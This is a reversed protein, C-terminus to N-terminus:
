HRYLELRVWTFYLNKINESDLGIYWSFSQPDKRVQHFVEMKRWTRWWINRTELINIEGNSSFTGDNYYIRNHFMYGSEPNLLLLNTWEETNDSVWLSMRIFDWAKIQSFDDFHVEYNSTNSWVQHLVYSSDGPNDLLVINNDWSSPYLTYYNTSINNWGAFDWGNLWLYNEWIRTLAISGDRIDCYVSKVPEPWPWDIDIDYYKDELAEWQDFLDQCNFGYSFSVQFYKQLFKKMKSIGDDAIFSIYKDFSETPTVSYIYRLKELFDNMGDQSRLYETSGSFVIPDSVNFNFGRETDLFDSYSAPLNFFENYVLQQNTIIDIVWTSSLDAAVISPAAIYTYEWWTERVRIMIQNYSWQVYATEVWAHSEPILSLDWIEEEEELAELIWGIQYEKENNTVSYTYYNNFMPDFPTEQGFNKIQRTVTEWFVGQSWAVWDNYMIDTYDDPLPYQSNESYFLELNTGILNFSTKRASDRSVSFSNFLYISWITGLIALITVVVLLEVLTFAPKNISM